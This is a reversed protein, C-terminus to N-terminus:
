RRNAYKQITFKLFVAAIHRSKSEGFYNILETSIDRQVCEIMTWLSVTDAPADEPVINLEAVYVNALTIAM